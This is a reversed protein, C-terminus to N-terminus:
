GISPVARDCRVKPAVAEGVLGAIDSSIPGLEKSNIHGRDDTGAALLARGHDTM